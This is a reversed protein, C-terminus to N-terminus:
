EVYCVLAFDRVPDRVRSKLNSDLSLIDVCDFFPQWVAGICKGSEGVAANFAAKNNWCEVVVAVRAANAL